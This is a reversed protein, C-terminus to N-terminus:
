VTQRKKQRGLLLALVLFAAAFGIQILMGAYIGKLDAFTYASLESIDRVATVYWYTPTFSAVYKVTAGLLEQPVFVGSIFSSGLAVVNAVSHQAGPGRILYGLLFSLSLATFSFVCANGIMLLVKPNMLSSGTLILCAVILFLWVLVALCVNGLFLELNIRSAKEPSCQMRNKLDRKNFVQMITSVALIMISVITYSMYIFFYTTKSLSDVPTAGDAWKVVTENGLDTKVKAATDTLAATDDTRIDSAETYLRFLSLYKEIAMDMQVGSTSNGAAMKGVPLANTGGVFDDTFGKPIKVIYTADEYFLADQIGEETKAAPIVNSKSSLYEILGKTLPTDGDENVIMINEKTESFTTGTTNSNSMTLLIAFVFFIGIYIFLTPLNRYIIKFYAKFVKM